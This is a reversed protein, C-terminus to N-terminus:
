FLLVPKKKEWNLIRYLILLKKSTISSLLCRNGKRFDLIVLILSRKKGKRYFDIYIIKWKMWHNEIKMRMDLRFLLFFCMVLTLFISLFYFYQRFIFRRMKTVIYDCIKKNEDWTWTSDRAYSISIFSNFNM